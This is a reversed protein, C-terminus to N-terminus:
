FSFKQSFSNYKVGTKNDGRHRVAGDFAQLNSFSITQLPNLNSDLAIVSADLDVTQKKKM